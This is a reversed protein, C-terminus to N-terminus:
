ISRSRVQVAEAAPQLQSAAHSDEAQVDVKDGPLGAGASCLKPSFSLLMHKKAKPVKNKPLLIVKPTQAWRINGGLVRRRRIFPVCLLM